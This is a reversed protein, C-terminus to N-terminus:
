TKLPLLVRLASGPFGAPSVCLSFVSVFAEDDGSREVAAAVKGLIILTDCDRNGDKRGGEERRM